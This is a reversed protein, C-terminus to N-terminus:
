GRTINAFAAGSSLRLSLLGGQAPKKWEIPTTILKKLQESVQYIGNDGLLTVVHVLGDGRRHQTQALTRWALRACGGSKHFFHRAVLALCDVGFFPARRLSTFVPTTVGSHLIHAGVQLLFREQYAIGVRDPRYGERSSCSRWRM